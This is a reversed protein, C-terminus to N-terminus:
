QNWKDATKKRHGSGKARVSLQEPGREPARLSEEEARARAEGDKRDVAERLRQAQRRRQEQKNMKDERQSTTECQGREGEDRGPDKIPVAVLGFRISGNWISRPMASDSGASRGTEVGATGTIEVM